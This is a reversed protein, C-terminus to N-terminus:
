TFSCVPWLCFTHTSNVILCAKQGESNMFFETNLSSSEESVSCACSLCFEISEETIQSVM